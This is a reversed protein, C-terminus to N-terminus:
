HGHQRLLAIDENDSLYMGDGLDHATKGPESPPVGIGEGRYWIEVGM